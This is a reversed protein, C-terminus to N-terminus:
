NIYMYIYMINYNKQHIYIKYERYYKIINYQIYFIYILNYTIYMYYIFAYIFIGNRESVIQKTLGRNQLKKVFNLEAELM